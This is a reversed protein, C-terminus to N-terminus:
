SGDQDSFYDEVLGRYESPVHNSDPGAAGVEGQVTTGTGVSAGNGSGISASNGQGGTQIGSENPSRSLTIATRPDEAAGTEDGTAGGGEEVEPESPTGSGSEGGTSGSGSDPSTQDPTDGTGAGGGQDGSGDDPGERGTQGTNPADSAPNQGEAGPADAGAAESQGAGGPQSEGGEPPAESSAGGPQQEGGASPDGPAEEGEPQSASSSSPLGGSEDQPEGANSDGPQQENEGAQGPEGPSDPGGQQDGSENAEAAEARSMESALEEQPVIDSAARDVTDGLESMGEKAPEGGERLGDAADRTADALGNEGPSMEDAARDLDDALGERAAPSLQDANEAVQRIQDAAAAYDGREIAEAAARTVAQDSLADGLRKLDQQAQSSREAMEQVEARTPADAQVAGAQPEPEPQKALREAAPVFAPVPEVALAPIGGGIGRLFFLASLILMCVLTLVIERVPPRIKFAPHGKLESIVNAADAMQLYTISPREGDAPVDRGVGDVATLIREQLSFSRDLMRAVRRRSPRTISAFFLALPLVLAWLAVVVAPQLESGGALEIALWICGILLPLWVARALVNLAQQLWIRRTLRKLEGSFYDGVQGGAPFSAERTRLWPPPMDSGVWLPSWAIRFLLLRREDGQPPRWNAVARGAAVVREVDVQLTPRPLSPLSIRNAM